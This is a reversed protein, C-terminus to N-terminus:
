SVYRIRPDLLGVVVSTRAGWAIRAWIDCGQRNFGLPHGAVPAGNSNGLQCAAGLPSVSTFLQPVIAMVIVVLAVVASIWFLPRGRMDRWADLWLNSAKDSVAVRDVVIEEGKVPAVFHTNRSM